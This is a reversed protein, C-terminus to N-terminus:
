SNQFSIFGGLYLLMNHFICSLFLLDGLNNEGMEGMPARNLLCNTLDSAGFQLTHTQITNQLSKVHRSGKWVMLFLYLGYASFPVWVRSSHACFIAGFQCFFLEPSKQKHKPNNIPSIHNFLLNLLKRCNIQELNTHYFRSKLIKFM